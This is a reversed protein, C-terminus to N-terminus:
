SIGIGRDKVAVQVWKDDVISCEVLVLSEPPSFKIANDCLNSIVQTIKLLDGEIVAPVNDDLKVQVIANKKQAIKNYITQLENLIALVRISQEDLVAQHAELKSFDLFTNIIRVLRQASEQMSKAIELQESDMKTSLMIESLGLLGSAPTRLEHSTNQVFRAKAKLQSLSTEQDQLVRLQKEMAAEATTDEIFAVARVIKHEKNYIPSASVRLTAQSGDGRTILMKEGRIIEGKTISRALPYNEEPYDIGTAAYAERTAGALEDIHKWKRAIDLDGWCQAMTKSQYIVEGTTSIVLAAAPIANLLVHWAQISTKWSCDSLAPTLVSVQNEDQLARMHQAEQDHEEHQEPAVNRLLAVPSESLWVVTGSQDPTKWDRRELKRQRGNHHLM